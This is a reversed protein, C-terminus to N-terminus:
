GVRRIRMTIHTGIRAFYSGLSARRISIPMGARPDDAERGTEVQEWRAGDELVLIWKGGAQSVSRLTTEIRDFDQAKDGDPSTHEDQRGEFLPIRPLAFGFLSRRTAAIQGRDVVVVDRRSTALELDKAQEDYCALRPASETIGRCELLKRLAPARDSAPPAAGAPMSSCALLAASLGLGRKSM